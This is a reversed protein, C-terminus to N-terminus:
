KTNRKSGSSCRARPRPWVTIKGAHGAYRELLAQRMPPTVVIVRSASEIVRKERQRANRLNWRCHPNSLWEPTWPDRYDLIFPIDTARYLRWAVTASEFPPTTAVIVAPEFEDILKLGSQFAPPQAKLRGVVDGNSSPVARDLGM